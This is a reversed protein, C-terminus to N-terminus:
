TNKEILRQEGESVRALTNGVGVLPLLKLIPWRADM